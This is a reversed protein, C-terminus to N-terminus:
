VKQLLELVHTPDYPKCLYGLVGAKRAQRKLKWAPQLSTVIIHPATPQLAQLEAVLAWGDMDTQALDVIALHYPTPTAAMRGRAEAATAAEDMLPLNALALRARLYLRETPEPNIVLARLPQTEPEPPRTEEFGLDLSFDVDDGSAEAPSTGSTPESMPPNM